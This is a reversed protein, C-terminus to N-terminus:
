VKMAQPFAAINSSHVYQLFLPYSVYKEPTHNHVRRAIMKYLEFGPFREEGNSKYVVNKGRDDLCWTYILQEFLSMSGANPKHDCDFFFDYLSCGLRCLDFSYNPPVRRKQSNYFPVDNYQSYGDGNVDFSDSMFVMNDVTYVSRGFDIIKYLRGYTPVKYVIGNYNYYLYELSTTKYLINNSHLDNHTFQFTKQYKILTMLIQFIMSAKEDDDALQGTQFLSDLTNECKEMIIVQTPFQKIYVFMQENASDSYKEVSEDYDSEEGDEGDEGSDEDHEEGDEGDEGSDGSDGSDEDDGGNEDSDGSDEDDGGNEDSDGSDGSDGSDSYVFDHEADDSCELEDHIDTLTDDGAPPHIDIAVSDIDEIGDLEVPADWQKLTHKMKRSDDNTNLIQSFAALNDVEYIKNLQTIFFPDHKLYDLEEYINYKFKDQVGIYTGYFDIGHLFGQEQLLQSSLYVFFTDIYSSNYINSLKPLGSTECIYKELHGPDYEKCHGTLYQFPDLLPSFKYFVEHLPKRRPLGLGPVAGYVKLLPFYPRADQIDPLPDCDTYQELYVRPSTM